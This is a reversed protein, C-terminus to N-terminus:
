SRTLIDGTRLERQSGAKIPFRRHVLYGTADTYDDISPHKNSKEPVGNENYSQQEFAEVLEPCTEVNITLTGDQFRKNVTNVRDRVFPNKNPVDVKFHKKLMKIDTTTANTSQSKGSADPYITIDHNPYESLLTEIIDQTDSCVFTKIIPVKNDREVSVIVVCGGVNFDVGIHLSDLFFDYALISDDNNCTNRNFYAYVSGSAMNVFMGNCYANFLEPTYNERMSELFEPPLFPNDTSKAHIIRGIKQKVFLQYTAKFGEPTTSFFMQMVKGARLRGDLKVFAKLAIETKTTDFEDCGIFSANVGIIREFNELSRMLIVTDGEKFHMTLKPQPKSIFSYERGKKMGLSQLMKLMDPILIDDLLPSTPEFLIGTTNPNKYALDLAKACFAFTKGGGYGSVLALYRTKYDALFESQHSLLRIPAKPVKSM